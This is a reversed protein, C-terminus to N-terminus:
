GGLPGAARKFLAAIDEGGEGADHAQRCYRAFADTMLSRLGREAFARRRRESGALHVDVTAQGGEYDGAEVRRAADAIHDLLLATMDPMAAAFESPPVGRSAALAASELFGGLAAYYFGFASVYVANQLGPDEGLYCQTGALVALTDRHEAFADASGGYLIVTEDRGIHRPYGVISGALMRAGARRVLDMQGRMEAESGNTLQVFTRGSLADLVEPDALVEGAAAYDLVCMLALPGHAVAAAPSAVREVGAAALAVARAPPPASRNWALVEHGHDALAIALASGM